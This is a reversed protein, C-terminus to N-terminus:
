GYINWSQLWQRSAWNSAPGQMGFVFDKFYIFTVTFIIGFVALVMQGAIKPIRKAFEDVLVVFAIMAFYLAPFYHHVYMVRGMIYFPIYHLFWGLLGVKSAFM